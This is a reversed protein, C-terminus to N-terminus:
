IGETTFKGETIQVKNGDKDEIIGEFNGSLLKVGYLDKMVTVTITLYNSGDTKRIWYTKGAISFSVSGRSDRDIRYVGKGKIELIKWSIDLGNGSSWLIAVPITPTTWCKTRSTDTQYFKGNLKFTLTGKGQSLAPSSPKSTNVTQANGYLVNAAIVVALLFSKQWM